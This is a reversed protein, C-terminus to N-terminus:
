ETEEETPKPRTYSQLYERFGEYAGKLAQLRAMGITDAPDHRDWESDKQATWYDCYAMLHRMVAVVYQSPIARIREEIEDLQPVTLEEAM